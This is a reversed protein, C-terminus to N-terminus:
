IIYIYIYASWASDASVEEPRCIFWPGTWWDTWRDVPLVTSSRIAKISERSLPKNKERKLAFYDQVVPSWGHPPKSRPTPRPFRTRRTRASFLASFLARVSRWARQTMIHPTDYAVPHFTQFPAVSQGVQGLQSCCRMTAAVRLCFLSSRNTVPSRIPEVMNWRQAQDTMPVHQCMADADSIWDDEKLWQTVGRKRRVIPMSPGPQRVATVWGVDRCRPAFGM